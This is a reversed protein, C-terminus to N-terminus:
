TDVHTSFLEGIKDLQARLKKLEGYHTSNIRQGEGAVRELLNLVGGLGLILWGIYPTVSMM